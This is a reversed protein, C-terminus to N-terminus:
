YFVTFRLEYPLTHCRASRQDIAKPPPRGETLMGQTLMGQTLMGQTLMGQTLMGQTLMGQSPMGHYLCCYTEASTIGIEQEALHQCSFPM